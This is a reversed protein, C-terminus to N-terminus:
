GETTAGRNFFCVETTRVAEKFKPCSSRKARAELRKMAQLDAIDEDEPTAKLLGTLGPVAPLKDKVGFYTAAIAAIMAAIQTWNLSQLWTLIV